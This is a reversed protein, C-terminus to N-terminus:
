AWLRIMDKQGTAAILQLVDAAQACNALARNVRDPEDVHLRVWSILLQKKEEGKMAPKRNFAVELSGADSLIEFPRVIKIGKSQTSAVLVMNNPMSLSMPIGLARFNPVSKINVASQLSPPATAEENNTTGDVNKDGDLLLDDESKRVPQQVATATGGAATTPDTKVAQHVRTWLKAKLSTLMVDSEYSWWACAPQHKRAMLKARAYHDGQFVGRIVERVAKVVIVAGHKKWVSGTGEAVEADTYAGLHMQASRRRKREKVGENEKGGVALKAAGQLMAPAGKSRRGIPALLDAHSPRGGQNDQSSAAGLGVSTQSRRFKAKQAPNESTSDSSKNQQGTTDTNDEAFSVLRADSGGVDAGGGAVQEKVQLGKELHWLLQLAGPPIRLVNQTGDYGVSVLDGATERGYPREYRACRVSLLNQFHSDSDGDVEAHLTILDSGTVESNRGGTTAGASAAVQVGVRHIRAMMERKTGGSLWTADVIQDELQELSKEVEEQVRLSITSPCYKRAYIQDLEPLFYKQTLQLASLQLDKKMERAVLYRLYLEVDAAELQPLLYAVRQVCEPHQVLLTTCASSRGKAAVVCETVFDTFNFCPTSAKKKVAKNNGGSGGCCGMRAPPAFEKISASSTSASAKANMLAVMDFAEDAVKKQWTVPDTRVPAIGSQTQGVAERLSRQLQIIKAALPAPNFNGEHLDQQESAFAPGFAFSGVWTLVDCIFQEDEVEHLNSAVELQRTALSKKDEVTNVAARFFAVIGHEQGLKTLIKPLDVLLKNIKWKPSSVADVVHKPASISTNNNSVAQPGSTEQKATRYFVKAHHLQREKDRESEDSILELEQGDEATLLAELQAEVRAQTVELLGVWPRTDDGLAAAHYDTTLAIDEPTVKM